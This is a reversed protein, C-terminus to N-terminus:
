PQVAKPFAAVFSRICAGCVDYRTKKDPDAPLRPIRVHIGTKADLAKGCRDCTYSSSIM